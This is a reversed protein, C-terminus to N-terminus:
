DPKKAWFRLTPDTDSKYVLETEIYVELTKQRQEFVVLTGDAHIDMDLPDEYYDNDHHLHFYVTRGAPLDFSEAMPEIIVEMPRGLKNHFAIKEIRM